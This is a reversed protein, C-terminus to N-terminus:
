LEGCEEADICEIGAMDSAIFRLPTSCETRDGDEAPDLPIALAIPIVANYLLLLNTRDRQLNNDLLRSDM